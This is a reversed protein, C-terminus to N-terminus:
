MARGEPGAEASHDEDGKRRMGNGILVAAVLDGTINIATRCMDLLRDVGLILPLGIPPIGFGAVINSLIVISVGPTGPAGISSLVLTGIILIQQALSLEQGAVQSMFIVAVAQYLATGAMNITAGLPIVIGAITKEVDLKKVLTEISLPMVAVSSSTSFGLLQASGAAQAFRLPNRGALAIILYYLFALLLLGGLVCAVYVGLSAITALGQKAVLQATLGFVAYPTLYMAWKVVIMSIELLGDILQLIGHMKERNAQRCAIGALVALIVIALLDQNLLALQPNTPLIGLLLDPAAKLFRDGNLPDAAKPLEVAPMEAPTMSVYRGPEFRNAIVVGLAAAATTTLLVFIMLKLGASKLRATDATGTFGQIISGIILPVLVISILGLFIKGPLAFWAGITEAQERSVLGAGPGLLAGTLIGAMLAIIVQLWLRQGIWSEVAGILNGLPFGTRRRGFM